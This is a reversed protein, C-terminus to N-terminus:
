RIQGGRVQTFTGTVPKGHVSEHCDRCLALLDSLRERGVRAYTRHHVQTAQSGCVQCSHQAAALARERTEQWADCRLYRDYWDWWARGDPPRGPHQGKELKALRRRIARPNIGLARPNTGNMRRSRRVSRTM